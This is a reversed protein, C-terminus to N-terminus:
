KGEAVQWVKNAYMRAAFDEKTTHLSIGVANEVSLAFVGSMLEAIEEETPPRHWATTEPPYVLPVGLRREWETIFDRSITVRHPEHWLKIRLSAEFM